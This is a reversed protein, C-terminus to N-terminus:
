AGLVSYVFQRVSLIIILIAVLIMLPRDPLRRTVYAAFPAAIIGGIILGAIIPWLTLGISLFFTTSIAATVFFEAANSSGIALRAKLGQGILTSTVM